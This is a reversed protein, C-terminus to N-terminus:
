RTVVVLDWIGAVSFRGLFVCRAFLHGQGRNGCGRATATTSSSPPTLVPLVWVVMERLTHASGIVECIVKKTFLFRRIVHPPMGPKKM